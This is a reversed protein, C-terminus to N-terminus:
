DVEWKRKDGTSPSTLDGSSWTNGKNEEGETVEIEKSPSDQKPLTLFRYNIQSNKEPITDTMLAWM